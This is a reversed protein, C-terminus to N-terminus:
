FIGGLYRDAFMVAYRTADMGHDDVKVPAEGKEGTAKSWVYGDFEQETCTPKKAEALDPDTEILSDRLFFIRPKGDGARQLRGRVAELGRSVEKHATNTGIGNETLTARDEADHDCVTESVREDSAAWATEQDAESM